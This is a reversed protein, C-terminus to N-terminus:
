KRTPKKAARLALAAAESPTDATDGLADTSEPSASAPPSILLDIADLLAQRDADERLGLLALLKALTESDRDPAPLSSVLAVLRRFADSETRGLKKAFRKFNDREAPTVRASLVRTPAGGMIHTTVANTVLRTTM